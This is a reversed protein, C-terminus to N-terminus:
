RDLVLYMYRAKGQRFRARKGDAFCADPLSAVQLLGVSHWLSDPAAHQEM